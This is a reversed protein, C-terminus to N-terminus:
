ARTEPPPPVAEDFALVGAVEGRGARVRRAVWRYLAGDPGRAAVPVRSVTLGSRPIEEEHFYVRPQGPELIQGAARVQEATRVGDVTFRPIQGRRFRIAASGATLPVPVLPIWHAPVTTLLRYALAAPDPTAPLPPDDPM